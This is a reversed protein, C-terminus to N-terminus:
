WGLFVTVFVSSSKYNEFSRKTEAYQKEDYKIGTSAWINYGFYTSSNQFQLIYSQQKFDNESQVKDKFDFEIGSLGQLGLMINSRDSIVYKFLVLPIRTTYYDGPRPIDSRVKRYFRFKIGPSFIWKGFSKTYVLKNVMALTKLLEGPQYTKDYMLGELQDNKEFKVHNELTLAPIARIKSDLFLRSVHSNKYELEDYYLERTFRGVSATIGQELYEEKMKSSVQIYQDRIDDQIREYRYEAYINGITFVDYNVILKVYDDNTRYHSGVGHTRFSGAVLSVSSVPSYRLMFHMGRRDLDYPTDWKMDDERFDPISNNNFDNGFVFKDPDTDFMLFPEDYDPISNNNKNNDAVGDNDADNGPFVGDPDESSRINFGMSRQVLMTDPYQDDDDNDEILPVRATFNRSNLNTYSGGSVGYFYDLYPRFFKGMKFIEGAFGFKEWKKEVTMYYANDVQEWKHGTRPPLGEVVSPPLGTGPVDDPFMYHSSNAVYEGKIKLGRYNFDMDVGYIVSAVQLGFNVTLRTVNSQDKINGEAQAMTKWYTSNYHTSVKGTTDHGGETKKTYILATQIRYDNAVEIEAEVRNVHEKITSIDFYYVISETGNANAQNIGPDLFSYYKQSLNIGFNKQVNKMDMGAMYEENYLYDMYKPLTGWMELQDHSPGGIGVPSDPTLYKQYLPNIITSTRERSVDDVIIRPIIDGRYRGNVKLKVDYIVPGGEGDEPSDDLFRLAVILPTPTYYGVTGYWSDGGERSGHVGYQNVYTAGLTLAGLKRRFHGGRLLVGGYRYTNMYATNVMALSYNASQFDLRMGNLNPLSLTLPTFKTRISGAGIASFAWDDTTEKAVWVGDISGTSIANIYGSPFSITFRGDDYYREQWIRGSSTMKEIRDGFENYSWRRRQSEIINYNEFGRFAYNQYRDEMEYFEYGWRKYQDYHKGFDGLFTQNRAYKNAKGLSNLRDETSMSLWDDESLKRLEYVNQAHIISTICNLM